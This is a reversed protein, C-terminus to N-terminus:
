GDKHGGEFKERTTPADIGLVARGVAGAQADLKRKFGTVTDELERVEDRLQSTEAECTRRHDDYRKESELRYQNHRAEAAALDARLNRNETMLVGVQKAYGERRALRDEASLKRTERWEKIVYWTALVALYLLTYTGPTMMKSLGSLATGLEM